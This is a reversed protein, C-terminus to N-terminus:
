STITVKPEGMWPVRTPAAYQKRNQRQKRETERHKKLQETVETKIGSVEEKRREKREGEWGEKRGNDRGGKRGEKRGGQRREKRGKERGRKEKGRKERRVEKGGERRRQFTTNGTKGQGKENVSTLLFTRIQWRVRSIKLYAVEIGM